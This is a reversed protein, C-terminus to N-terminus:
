AESRQKYRNQLNQIIRECYGEMAKCDEASFGNLAARGMEEMAQEMQVAANRGKETLLLVNARQNAQNRERTVFGLKELRAVSVAVTAASVHMLRVIDAQSGGGNHLLYGLIPGQGPHVQENTAKAHLCQFFMQRVGFVKFFFQKSEDM